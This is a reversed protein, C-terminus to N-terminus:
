KEKQHLTPAPYTSSVQYNKTIFSGQNSIKEQKTESTYPLSALVQDSSPKGRQFRRIYALYLTPLRTEGATISKEACTYPLGIQSQHAQFSM